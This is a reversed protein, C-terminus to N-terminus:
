FGQVINWFYEDSIVFLDNTKQLRIADIRKSPGVNNQNIIFIDTKGSLSSTCKAELEKLIDRIKNKDSESMGSIVVTKGKFFNLNSIKEHNFVIDDPAVTATGHQTHRTNSGEADYRKVYPLYKEDHIFSSIDVQTSLSNLIEGCARADDLAMHHNVFPKDFLNLYLSTVNEEKKLFHAIEKTDIWRSYLKPLNYYEELHYIYNLDAGKSHSVLIKDRLMEQLKPFLKNYSPAESLVDDTIHCLYKRAWDNRKLGVAPNIYSHFNSIEVGNKYEVLGVECVSLPNDDLKEFDIAIYDISDSMKQYSQQKRVNSTGGSYWDYLHYEDLMCEFDEQYYVKIDDGKERMQRILRLDEEEADIGNIVIETSQSVHLSVAAGHEWLLFVLQRIDDDSGFNDLHGIIAVHKYYFPTNKNEIQGDSKFEQYQSDVKM